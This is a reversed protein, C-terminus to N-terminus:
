IYLVTVPYNVFIVKIDPDELKTQLADKEHYPAGHATVVPRYRGGIYVREITIDLSTVWHSREERQLAKWAEELGKLEERNANLAVAVTVLRPVEFVPKM